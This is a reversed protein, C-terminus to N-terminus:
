AQAEVRVEEAVEERHGPAERVHVEAAEREQLAREIEKWEVAGAEFREREQAALDIQHALPLTPLLERLDLPRSEEEDEKKDRRDIVRMTDAAVKSLVHSPVEEADDRLRRGLETLALEAVDLLPDESNTKKKTM